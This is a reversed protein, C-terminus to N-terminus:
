LDLTIDGTVSRSVCLKMRDGPPRSTNAYVPDRHEPVGALVTTECAGCHGSHCAHRIHVGAALVVDLISCHEPVDLSKRSRALHVKFAPM